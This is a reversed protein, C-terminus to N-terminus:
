IGHLDCFAEWLAKARVDFDTESEDANRTYTRTYTIGNAVKSFTVSSMNYDTITELIPSDLVPLIQGELRGVSLAIYLLAVLALVSGITWMVM